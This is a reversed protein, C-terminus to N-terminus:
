SVVNPWGFISFPLLGSSYWTDLVDEDTDFFSLVCLLHVVLLILSFSCAFSVVEPVTCTCTNEDVKAVKMGVHSREVSWM